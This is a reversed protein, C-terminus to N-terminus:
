IQTDLFKPPEAHTQRGWLPCLKPRGPYMLLPAPPSVRVRQVPGTHETQYTISCWWNPTVNYPGLTRCTMTREDRTCLTMYESTCLVRTNYHSFCLWLHGFLKECQNSKITKRQVKNWLDACIELSGSMHSLWACSCGYIVYKYMM